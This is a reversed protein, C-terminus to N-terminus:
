VAEARLKMSASRSRGTTRVPDWSDMEASPFSATRFTRSAQATAAASSRRPTNRTNPPFIM